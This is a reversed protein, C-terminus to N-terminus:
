NLWKQDASSVGGHSSPLVLRKGSSIHETNDHYLQIRYGDPDEVVVMTGALAQIIHSHSVKLTDLHDIWKGLNNAAFTIVNIGKTKQATQADLRLEVSGQCGPISLIHAFITGDEKTHDLEPLHKGNFVTKYFQLSEKLSSVYIKLHHIGSISPPTNTASMKYKHRVTFLKVKYFYANSTHHTYSYFFLFYTKMVCTDIFINTPQYPVKNNIVKEGRSLTCGYIIYDKKRRKLKM